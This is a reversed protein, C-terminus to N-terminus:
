RVMEDEVSGKRRKGKIKGRMLTKEEGKPHIPQTEKFVLPSELTKELVM